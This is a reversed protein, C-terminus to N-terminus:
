AVRRKEVGRLAVTIEGTVPLSSVPQDLTVRVNANAPIILPTRFTHSQRINTIMNYATTDAGSDTISGSLGAVLSLCDQLNGTYFNVDDVEIKLYKHISNLFITQPDVPTDPQNIYVELNQLSAKNIQSLPFIASFLNEARNGNTFFQYQAQAGSAIPLTDFYTIPVEQFEQRKLEDWYFSNLKDMQLGHLCLTLKVTDFVTAFNSTTILKFEFASTSNMIIPLDLKRVKGKFPSGNLTEVVLEPTADLGLAGIFQVFDLGPYEGQVRDNISIVLKSQQMLENLGNILAPTTIPTEVLLSFSEVFFIESGALPLQINRAFNNGTPTVFFNYQTQGATVTVQDYYPYDKRRINDGPQPYANRNLVELTNM